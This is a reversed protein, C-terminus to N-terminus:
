MGEVVVVVDVYIGDDVDVAAFQGLPVTICPSPV